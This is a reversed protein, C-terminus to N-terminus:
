EMGLAYAAYGEKHKRDHHAKIADRIHVLLPARVDVHAGPKMTLAQELQSIRREYDTAHSLENLERQISAILADKQAKIERLEACSKRALSDHSLFYDENEEYIM